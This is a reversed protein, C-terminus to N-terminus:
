PVVFNQRSSWGLPWQCDPAHLPPPRDCSGPLFPAWKPTPPIFLPISSVHNTKNCELLKTIIHQYHSLSLNYVNLLILNGPILHLFPLIYNLSEKKKFLSTSVAIKLTTNLKWILAFKSLLISHAKKFQHHLLM